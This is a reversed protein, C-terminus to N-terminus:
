YMSRSHKQNEKL